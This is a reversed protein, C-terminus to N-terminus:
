TTPRALARARAWLGCQTAVQVLLAGLVDPGPTLTDDLVHRRLRALPRALRTLAEHHSRPLLRRVTDCHTAQRWRQQFVRPSCYRCCTAWRQAMAAVQILEAYWAPVDVTRRRAEVVLEAFEEDLVSWAEDM